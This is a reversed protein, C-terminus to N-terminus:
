CAARRRTESSATQEITQAHCDAEFVRLLQELLPQSGAKRTKHLWELAKHIASGFVLGVPKVMKPLHDIYQVSM